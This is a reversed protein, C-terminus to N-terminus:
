DADRILMNGVLALFLSLIARHLEARALNATHFGLRKIKEKRENEGEERRRWGCRGVRRDPISGSASKGDTQPREWGDGEEEEADGGEQRESPSTQSQQATASAINRKKM